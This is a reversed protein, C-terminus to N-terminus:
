KRERIAKTTDMLLARKIDADPVGADWISDAIEEVVKACAEREAKIAGDVWVLAAEAYAMIEERSLPEEEALEEWTAMGRKEGVFTLYLPDAEYMAKALPEVRGDGDVPFASAVSTEEVEGM